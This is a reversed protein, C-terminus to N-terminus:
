RAVGPVERFDDDDGRGRIMARGCVQGREDVDPCRHPAEGRVLEQPPEAVLETSQSILWSTWVNAIGYQGMYTRDPASHKPSGTAWAKWCKACLQGREDRRDPEVVGGRCGCRCACFGPIM